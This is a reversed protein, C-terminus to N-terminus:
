LEDSTTDGEVSRAWCMQCFWEELLPHCYPLFCISWTGLRQSRTRGRSKISKWCRGRAKQMLSINGGLIITSKPMQINIEKTKSNWFNPKSLNYINTQLYYFLNFNLTPYLLFHFNHLMRSDLSFWQKINERITRWNKEHRSICVYVWLTYIYKFNLIVM